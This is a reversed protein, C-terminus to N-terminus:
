MEEDEDHHTTFNKVKNPRLSQDHMEDLSLKVEQDM